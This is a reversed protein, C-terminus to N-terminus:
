RNFGVNPVTSQSARGDDLDLVHGHGVAHVGLRGVHEFLDDKTAVPVLGKPGQPVNVEDNPLTLLETITPGLPAPM